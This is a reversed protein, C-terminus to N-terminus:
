RTFAIGFGIRESLADYMGVSEGYGHWYQIYWDVNRMPGQLSLEMAGRPTDTDLTNRVM